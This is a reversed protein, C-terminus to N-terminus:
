SLNVVEALIKKSHQAHHTYQPHVGGAIHGHCRPRGGPAGPHLLSTKPSPSQLSVGGQPTKRRPVWLSKILSVETSINFREIVLWALQVLIDLSM